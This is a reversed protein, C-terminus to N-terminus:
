PFQLTSTPVITDKETQWIKYIYQLYHHDYFKDAKFNSAM